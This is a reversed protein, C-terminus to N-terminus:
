RAGWQRQKDLADLQAQSAPQDFMYAPPQQVEIGFIRV